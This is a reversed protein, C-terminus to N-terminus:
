RKLCTFNFKRNRRSVRRFVQAFCPSIGTFILLFNNIKLKIVLSHNMQELYLDHNVHVNIAHVNICTYFHFVHM